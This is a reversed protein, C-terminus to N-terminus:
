VLYNQPPMCFDRNIDLNPPPPDLKALLSDINGDNKTFLTKFHTEWQYGDMDVSFNSMNKNEDLGKWVDSFSKHSSMPNEIETKCFRHWKFNCLRRLDKLLTRHMQQLHKDWPIKHKRNALERARNKFRICDLDFWKKPHKNKNIRQKNSKPHLAIEAAERFIKQIM